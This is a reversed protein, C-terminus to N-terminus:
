QSLDSLVQRATDARTGTAEQALFRELMARAESVRGQEGYILGLLLEVDAQDPALRLASELAGAAGDLDQRQALVWGLGYYSDPDSRDAAVARELLMQARALDKADVAVQAQQRLVVPSEAWRRNGLGVGGLLLIVVVGVVLWRVRKSTTDFLMGVPAAVSQTHFHAWSFQYRPALMFGLVAGLLLGGLHAINNIGQVTFGFVLNIGIMAALNALRDRGFRGFLPRNRLFFAAEAGILGFVAGSAGASLVDSGLLYYAVNGALGTLLFIAVFWGSGYFAEVDRGISFLAWGNFAVHMVGIHLFVAALLRWYGGTAILSNMQAGLNILTRTSTSGGLLTEVLFIAGIIGVLVSTVVPKTLPLRVTPAPPPTAPPAAFTMADGAALRRSV